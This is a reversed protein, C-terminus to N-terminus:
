LADAEEVTLKEALGTYIVEIKEIAQWSPGAEVFDHLMELENFYHEVDIIGVATRYFVTAKWRFKASM